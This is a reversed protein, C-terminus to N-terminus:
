IFKNDVATYDMFDILAQQEKKSLQKFHKVMLEMGKLPDVQNVDAFRYITDCAEQIDLEKIM